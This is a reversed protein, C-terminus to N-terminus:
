ESSAGVCSGVRKRSAEDPKVRLLSVQSSRSHARSHSDVALDGVEYEDVVAQTGKSLQMVVYFFLRTLPGDLM